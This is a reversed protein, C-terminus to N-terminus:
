CTKMVRRMPGQGSAQKSTEVCLSIGNAILIVSAVSKPGGWNIMCTGADCEGGTISDYGAQNIFSQFLTSAYGNPGM